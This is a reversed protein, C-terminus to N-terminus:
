MHQRTKANQLRFTCSLMSTLARAVSSYGNFFMM